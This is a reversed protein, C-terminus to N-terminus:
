EIVVPEITVYGDQVETIVFEIRDGTRFRANTNRDKTASLRLKGIHSVTAWINSWKKSSSGLDYTDAAAPLLSGTLNDTMRTPGGAGLVLVSEPHQGTLSLHSMGEGGIWQSQAVSDNKFQLDVNGDYRCSIFRILGSTSKIDILVGNELYGKFDCNIFEMNGENGSWANGYGEFRLKYYDAIIPENGWNQERLRFFSHDASISGKVYLIHRVQQIFINDFHCETANFLPSQQLQTGNFFKIGDANIALDFGHLVIDRFVGQRVGAIDLGCTGEIYAGGSSLGIGSLYFPLSRGAHELEAADMRIMADGTWGGTRRFMTGYQFHNVPRIGQIKVFPKMILASSLDLQVPPLIIRKQFDHDGFDYDIIEQLTAQDVSDNCIFTRGFFIAKNGSEIGDLESADQWPSAGTQDPIDTLDNYSGSSAVAALDDALVYGNNSVFGDVQAEDLVTDLDDACIWSEGDSKLVQGLDCSLGDLNDAVRDPSCVLEGKNDVGVVKDTGTCSQEGTVVQEPLHDVPLIGTMDGLDHTHEEYNEGGSSCAAWFLCCFAIIGFMRM